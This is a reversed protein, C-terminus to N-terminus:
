KLRSFVKSLYLRSRKLLSSVDYVLAFLSIMLIPVSVVIWLWLSNRQDAAIPTLNMGFISTTFTLPVYFFALKTLKAVEYTQAIARKSETISASSMIVGVGRRCRESLAETRYLLHEYDKRLSSAAAEAKLKMAPESARPWKAGGRMRITEINERLRKAHDELIDQSYLLNSLQPNENSLQAYGTEQSLKSEMLNLFQLESNACFTFLEDLAYFADCAMVSSDYLKGYDLHLLLSSQALKSKPRLEQKIATRHAKLSIQQQHQITPHLITYPWGVNRDGSKIFWPGEPGQM